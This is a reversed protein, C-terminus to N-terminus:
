TLIGTPTGVPQQSPSQSGQPEQPETALISSGEPDPLLSITPSAAQNSIYGSISISSSDTNPDTSHESSDTGTNPPTVCPTTASMTSESSSCQNMMATEPNIEPVPIMIYSMNVPRFGNSWSTAVSATFRELNASAVFKELYSIQQRLTSNDATLHQVANELHQNYDQVYDLKNQLMSVFAKQRLRFQQAAERNREKKRARKEEDTVPKSGGTQSASGFDNLKKRKSGALLPATGTPSSMGYAQFMPSSAAYYDYPSASPTPTSLPPSLCPTSDVAM